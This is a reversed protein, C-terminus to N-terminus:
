IIINEPKIDRHVLNLAHVHSLGILLNKVILAAEEESFVPEQLDLVRGIELFAYRDKAYEEDFDSSYDSSSERVQSL